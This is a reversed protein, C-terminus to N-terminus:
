RSCTSYNHPARSPTHLFILDLHAGLFSGKNGIEPKGKDAVRRNRTADQGRTSEVATRM